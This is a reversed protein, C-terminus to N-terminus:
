ASVKIGFQAADFGAATWPLGTNPDTEFRAACRTRNTNLWYDASEADVGGSRARLRVARAGVDDKAVSATAIVGYIASPANVTDAFRYLDEAGPTASQVYSAGPSAQAVLQYNNASNGDSGVMQSLDGNANPFYSDVRVDGLWGNAVSGSTDNIVLDDFQITTSSTFDFLAIGNCGSGTNGAADLVLVPNGNIRVQMIGGSTAFVTRVQIHSYVSAPCVGAASTALVTGTTGGSMASLSGGANYRLTSVPVGDKRWQMVYHLISAPKFAFSAFLETHLPGLGKLLDDGYNSLQLCSGGRRGAAARISIGTGEYGDYENAIGSAETWDDFSDAWLIAM